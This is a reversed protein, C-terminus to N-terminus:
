RGAAPTWQLQRQSLDRAAKQGQDRLRNREAVTMCKSVIRNSGMQRERECVLRSDEKAQTLITNVIEQDNFANTEAEPSLPRGGAVEIAGTIRGLAARVKSRDDVSIESYTEGDALQENIKHLQKAVAEPPSHLDLPPQAAVALANGALAFSGLILTRAIWNM